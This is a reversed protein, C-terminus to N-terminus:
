FVMCGLLSIWVLPAIWIERCFLRCRQTLVDGLIGFIERKAGIINISPFYEGNEGARWGAFWAAFVGSRACLVLDGVRRWMKAEAECFDGDRRGPAEECLDSSM